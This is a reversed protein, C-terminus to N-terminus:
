DASEPPLLGYAELADSWIRGRNAHFYRRLLTRVADSDLAGEARARQLAAADSGDMRTARPGAASRWVGYGDFSVRLLSIRGDADVDFDAFVSDDALALTFSCPRTGTPWTHSRVELATM